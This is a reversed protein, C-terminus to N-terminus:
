GFGLPELDSGRLAVAKKVLGSEASLFSVPKGTV